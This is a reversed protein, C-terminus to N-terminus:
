SRKKRLIRELDFLLINKDTSVALRSSQANAALCYVPEDNPVKLNGVPDGEQSWIRIDGDASATIFGVNNSLPVVDVFSMGRHGNWTKMLKKRDVDYIALGSDHSACLIRSGDYSCAVKRYTNDPAFISVPQTEKDLLPNWINVFRDSTWVIANANRLVCGGSSVRGSLRYLYNVGTKLNRRCAINEGQITVVERNNLFKVDLVNNAGYEFLRFTDLKAGELSFVAVTGREDAALFSRGDPSLDMSTIYTDFGTRTSKDMKQQSYDLKVFVYQGNCKAYGSALLHNPSTFVIARAVDGTAVSAIVDLQRQKFQDGGAGFGLLIAGVILEM